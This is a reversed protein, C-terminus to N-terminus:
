AARNPFTGARHHVDIAVMSLRLYAYAPDRFIHVCAPCNDQMGLSQDHLNSTTSTSNLDTVSSQVEARVTQSHPEASSAWDDQPVTAAQTSKSGAKHAPVSTREDNTTEDNTLEGQVPPGQVEPHGPRGAVIPPPLVKDWNVTAGERIPDGDNLFAGLLLYGAKILEARAKEIRDRGIRRARDKHAFVQQLHDLQFTFGPAQAIMYGHIRFADLSLETDMLFSERVKRFYVQTDMPFVL